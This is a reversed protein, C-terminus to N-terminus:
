RMRRPRSLMRLQVAPVPVGEGGAWRVLEVGSAAMGDLRDTRELMLLQHATREERTARTLVAEPLVDVALVRHGTSAWTIAMTAAQEDLFTSLVVVLSSAPVLPTRVSRVPEGNPAATAITKQLRELHRTGGGPEVSRASGALDRLGVRDGAALYAAALSFAAERAIDLSTATAVAGRAGSWLTIDAGVEDRDDVVLMVIADATSFSRRVYLEGPQTARRATAKWDIRRLRDGPTFLAVDRFEGGDGPTSSGHAGTIGVVRHPLPLNEMRLRPPPIVRSSVPGAEPPTAVTGRAGLASYHLRVIEQPGSHTVPITGTIRAATARDVAFRHTTADAAQMLVAVGDAGDPLDIAIDYAVGTAVGSADDDPRLITRVTVEAGRRPRSDVGLAVVVLMPLALLAFEARSTVLGLALLLVGGGAGFLAAPGLSWRPADTTRDAATAQPSAPGQPSAQGQSSAQGQPAAAGQPSAPDTM